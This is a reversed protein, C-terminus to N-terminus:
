ICHITYINYISSSSNWIKVQSYLSIHIYVARPTRKTLHFLWGAQWFSTFYQGNGMPGGYLIAYYYYGVYLYLAKRNIYPVSITTYLLVVLFHQEYYAGQYVCCYIFLFGDDELFSTINERRGSWISPPM